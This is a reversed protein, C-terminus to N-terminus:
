GEKFQIRLTSKQEALAPDTMLDHMPSSEIDCTWTDNVLLREPNHVSGSVADVSAPVFRGGNIVLDVYAISIGEYGWSTIQLQPIVDGEPLLFTRYYYPQESLDATSPKLVGTFVAEPGNPNIAELAVHQAGYYDNLCFRVTVRNPTDPGDLVRRKWATWTETLARCDDHLDATPIGNRHKRFLTDLAASHESLRALIEDLEDSLTDRSVHDAGNWLLNLQHSWNQLDFCIREKELGLHTLAVIDNGKAVTSRTTELAVTLQRNAADRELMYPTQAGHVLLMPDKIDAGWPNQSGIAWLTACFLEDRTGFLEDCTDKWVKDADRENAPTSWLKGAFVIKPHDVLLLDRKREWVTMFAGGPSHLSEAFETFTVINRLDLERPAYWYPIDLEDYIDFRNENRVRGFYSPTNDVVPEYKWVVRIVDKPLSEILEPYDCSMDEWILLTKGLGKSLIEHMRTVHENLLDGSTTGEKLRASCVDCFGLDWVEDCGIHVMDDTFVTCLERWYAEAFAYTADNSPCMVSKNTGFRGRKGDQVEALHHMEEFKLFLEAHGLLSVGPIVSMSRSHAHDVVQRMDELTYSDADDPYPFHETKVRGELYLMVANYGAEACMDIFSLIYAITEPQRALDLQVCRIDTM